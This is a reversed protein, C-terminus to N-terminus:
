WLSFKEDIRRWRFQTFGEVDANNAEKAIKLENFFISAVNRPYGRSQGNENM